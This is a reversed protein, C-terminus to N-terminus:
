IWDRKNVGVKEKIHRQSGLDLYGKSGLSHLVEILDSIEQAQSIIYLHLKGVSREWVCMFIHSWM